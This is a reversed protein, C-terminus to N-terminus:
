AGTSAFLDADVGDKASGAKSSSTANSSRFPRSVLGTSSLTSLTGWSSGIREWNWVSLLWVESM